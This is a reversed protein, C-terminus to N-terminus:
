APAGPEARVVWRVWVYLVFVVMLIMTVQWFYIHLFDFAEPAWRGVALLMVIRALNLAYILPWGIAFGLAKKSWTTPYALLAAGLLLAEYLGTCEEIITVPFGSLFVTPRVPSVEVAAGVLSLIEFVLRATANEAASLLHGFERRLWPYSFSLIVLYALFNIAFRYTPVGWLRRLRAGLGDPPAGAPAPPSGGEIPDDQPTQM